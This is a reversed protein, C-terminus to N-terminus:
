RLRECFRVLWRAVAVLVLTFTLWGIDTMPEETTSRV